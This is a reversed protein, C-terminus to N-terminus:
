GIFMKWFLLVYYTLPATFLLSDFRDLVGGHGPLLIGSDKVEFGRKIVSEILDGVPAFFAIVFGLCHALSSSMMMFHIGVAVVVFMSGFFGGIAGEWSKKPSVKCFKHKGFTIGIFYAFTDSAWTGLLVLWLLAEGYTMTHNFLEFKWGPVGRVLIVHALLLGCYFFSFATYSADAMWNEEHWHCHRLLGEFCILLFIVVTLLLICPYQFFQDVGETYAYGVLALLLAVGGGGSFPYIHFGKNKAMQFFEHWALVGLALVALGFVWGGYTIIGVALVIGIVATIIRTLM